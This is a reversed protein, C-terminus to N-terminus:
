AARKGNDDQDDVDEVVVRSRLPQTAENLLAALDHLEDKSRLRFDAPREGDRVAELFRQFRYLPGAVRFTSLIGILLTLPLFVLASIAIVKIAVGNTSELLRQGDSPLSNAAQHLEATLLVYQLGLMLTVLGVFIGSMRLQLGPKILKQRRKHSSSM